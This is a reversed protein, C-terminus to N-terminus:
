LQCRFARRMRRSDSVLQDYIDEWLEGYRELDILRVIKSSNPATLPWAM